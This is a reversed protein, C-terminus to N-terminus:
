PTVGMEQDKVLSRLQIRLDRVNQWDPGDDALGEALLLAEKLSHKHM